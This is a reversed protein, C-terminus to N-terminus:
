NGLLPFCSVWNMLTEVLAAKLTVNWYLTEVWTLSDWKEASIKPKRPPKPPKPRVARLKLSWCVWVLAPKSYGSLKKRLLETMLVNSQARRKQATAQLMDDEDEDENDGGDRNDDNDGAQSSVTDDGLDSDTDSDSDDLERQLLRQISAVKKRDGEQKPIVKAPADKM